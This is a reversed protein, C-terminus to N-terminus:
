RLRGSSWLWPVLRSSVTRWFVYAHVSKGFLEARVTERDITVLFESAFSPKVFELVGFSRVSARGWFEAGFEACFEARFEACFEM